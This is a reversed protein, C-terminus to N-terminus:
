HDLHILKGTGSISTSVGPFGKYYVNGSGSIKVDLKEKAWVRVSGSGKIHARASVSELYLGDIKGSGAVDAKQSLATGSVKISGSGGVYSRIQDFEGAVELNGSGLIELEALAMPGFDEAVVTGSGSVRLTSWHPMEIHITIEDKRNRICRNTEIVLMKGTESVTIFEHLNEPASVQVSYESARSVKVSAHLRLDVSNFNSASTEIVVIEGRSKVCPFYDSKICSAMLFLSAAILMFSNTRYKM